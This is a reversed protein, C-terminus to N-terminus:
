CAPLFPFSLYFYLTVRLQSSPISYLGEVWAKCAAALEPQYKLIKKLEEDQALTSVADSARAKQPTVM